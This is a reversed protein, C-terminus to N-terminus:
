GRTPVCVGGRNGCCCSFSKLFQLFYVFRHFLSLLTASRVRDFTLPMGVMRAGIYDVAEVLFEEPQLRQGALLTGDRVTVPGVCKVTAADFRLPSDLRYIGGALDIVVPAPAVAGKPGRGDPNTANCRSRLHTNLAASSDVQGTPDSGPIPPSATTTTRHPLGAAAVIVAALLAAM